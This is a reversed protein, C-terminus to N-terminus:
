EIMQGQANYQHEGRIIILRGDQIIKQAKTEPAIVTSISTAENDDFIVRARIPTSSASTFFARLGPLSRNYDGACYLANNSLYYQTTQDLTGGGDLVPVMTLDGIKVHTPETNITVNAITFGDVADYGSTTQLIYPKGAEISTTHAFQLHLEEGADVV